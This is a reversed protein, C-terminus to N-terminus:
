LFNPLIYDNISKSVGDNEITDAVFTAENKVLNSANGM